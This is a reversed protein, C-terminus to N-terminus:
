AFIQVPQHFPMCQNFIHHIVCLCIPLNFATCLCFREYVRISVILAHFWASSLNLQECPKPGMNAFCRHILKCRYGCINIVVDSKFKTRWDAAIHFARVVAEPDDANAHIVAAGVTTAIDSCHISSRSDEPITTFGIQNNIVVHISGGTSYGPLGSLQFSEAVIGLGSMSADGHILLAM